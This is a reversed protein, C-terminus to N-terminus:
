GCGLGQAECFDKAEQFEADTEVFRHAGEVGGENTLVYYMWPGAEPAFAADLSAQGPASIPTPPIGAVARTNWPNPDNLEVTTLESCPIDPAYCATADIGLLWGQAIRNWIVRSIKTRDEDLFAEEEILSAIVVMDYEDFGMEVAEPPLGGAADSARAIRTDMEQSLRAVMLREDAINQEPVDYCAPFLMGEFPAILAISPDLFDSTLDQDSLADLLQERDFLDNEELLRDIFESLRLGEPICVQFVEPIIPGKALEDIVGEYTMNEWLVYDGAQFQVETDCGLFGTITIDGECRLWYRFVTANNIIGADALSTAVDNVAAGEPITFAVEEGLDGGASVQDDIWDYVRNRATVVVVILLIVIGIIRLFGGWSTRYRVWNRDDADYRPDVLPDAGPDDEFVYEVGNADHGASLVVGPPDAYDPLAIIPVETGDPAVTTPPPAPPAAQAARIVRTAPRTPPEEPILPKDTARPPAPPPKAAEPIEDDVQGTLFAAFSRRPKDAM